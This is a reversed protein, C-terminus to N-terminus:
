FHPILLPKQFEKTLTAQNFTTNHSHGSSHNISGLAQNSVTALTGLITISILIKNM